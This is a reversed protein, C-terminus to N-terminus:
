RLAPLVLHVSTGKGWESEIRVDGGSQAMFGQVMPLGLGTGEGLPKTTFYPEFLRVMADEAIGTGNDEVSVRVYRGGPLGAYLGQESAGLRLNETVIRVYGGAAPMADRANAVLNLLATQFKGSDLKVCPLEKALDLRLGMGGTFLRRLLPASDVIVRNVDVRRPRLDQRRAYALLQGTLRHGREAAAKMTGALEREYPGLASDKVLEDAGGLFVTLLNNFDHAVGGTLQGLAELRETHKAKQEMERRQTADRFVTVAQRRGTEDTMLNSTLDAWLPAGDARRLKLEGRFIGQKERQLLAQSLLPDGDFLVKERASGTLDANTYGLMRCGSANVALIRESEAARGEITTYIVGEGLSEFLFQYRIDAEALENRLAIIEERNAAAIELSRECANRLGNYFGLLRRTVPVLEHPFVVLTAVVGQQRTRVPLAIGIEGIQRKASVGGPRLIKIQRRPNGPRVVQARLRAVERRASIGISWIPECPRGDRHAFLVAAAVDRTNSTLAHRVGDWVEKPSANPRATEALRDLTAARRENWVRTSTNSAVSLFGSTVGDGSRLPSFSFTFHLEALKGNRRMVLPFDTQSLTGGGRLEEVAPTLFDEIESWTEMLPRGLAAPHKDALIPIYGDNYIQVLDDGLALLMPHESDLCLQVQARLEPSWDRMPGLSTVGWDTAAVLRRMKTPCFAILDLLM